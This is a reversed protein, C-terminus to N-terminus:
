IFLDSFHYTSINIKVLLIDAYVRPLRNPSIADFQLIRSLLDVIDYFLITTLSSSFVVAGGQLVLSVM